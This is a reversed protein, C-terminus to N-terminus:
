GIRWWISLQISSPLCSARSAYSLMRMGLMKDM